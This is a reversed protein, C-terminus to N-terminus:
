LPLSLNVGAVIGRVNSPKHVYVGISMDNVPVRIPRMDFILEGGYSTVNKINRARSGAQPFESYRAFDYFGKVRVRNFYVLSNIGGDPYWVPLQYDISAAGYRAAVDSYRASRPFLEKYYFRYSNDTQHQINARLTVGHHPMIGPTYLRGYLSTIKSFKNTFPASVLSAKIAFGWRPQLDRVAMRVNGSYTLSAIMRQYGKDYSDSSKLYILANLHMLEISPTLTRNKAGSSLLMPMFVRGTIQFRRKLNDPSSQESQLGYISQKGGGYDFSVEFKPALGYYSIAGTWLSGESTYGYSLRTFTSSLLDQSMATVGLNVNFSSEGVLENPDFSWPAWSHFNFLNLGKRYRKEAKPASKEDAPTQKKEAEQAAVTSETLSNVGSLDIVNWKRRPPNVTNQPLRMYGVNELSDYDIKQSAIRYGDITYTTFFLEDGENPASPSVSGYRSTTLRYESNSALDYIHIEDKGSAISNFVLRGAGARLNYISVYSPETISTIAGSITDIKNLSMGADGLGIFALTSTSQDYALGHVSMTDPIELKRGHELEVFYSGSYNYGVTAVDGGPLPTPYLANRRGRMTLTQGENLDHSCAKAFIEQDWLLSGRYESWYLIGNSLTPPTCVLGTYFLTKEAGTRPDVSVFRSARDMDKKLVILTTDNLMMPSDYTTYSTTPTNILTGSNNEVPLSRWFQTLEEITSRAIASQSTKYYKKIAFSTTMIFYPNRASYNIVRDWMDDGYKERSWAVIQYGFKYHDPIFDKYSGCFWKDLPFKNERETLYARYEVTFSPQLARGYPATQTEFMTADGELFWVPVLALSIMGSQQGILYSLPRMFGKSLGGYQAAHRYEHATLQKLWPQAYTAISPIAEFEMRKPAWLVLGNAVFNQTHLVTPLKLPKFSYGYTVSESLTDILSAVNAAGVRFYDPYIIKGSKAEIRNWKVGFPSRGLDYYQGHASTTFLFAIVAFGWRLLKHM